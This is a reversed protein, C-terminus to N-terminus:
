FNQLESPNSPLMVVAVGKLPQSFAKQGLDWCYFCNTLLAWLLWMQFLPQLSNRLPWRLVHQHAVVQLGRCSQAWWSLRQYRLELGCGIAKRVSWIRCAPRVDQHLKTFTQGQKMYISCHPFPPGQCTIETSLPPLTQTKQLDQCLPLLGLRTIALPNILLLCWTLIPPSLPHTHGHGQTTAHTASDSPRTFHETGRRPLSCPQLVCNSHSTALPERAGPWAPGWPNWGM